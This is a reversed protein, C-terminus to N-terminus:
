YGQISSVPILLFCASSRKPPPTTTYIWQHPWSPLTMTSLFLLCTVNPVYTGMPELSWEQPMVSGSTHSRRFGLGNLEDIPFALCQAWVWNTPDLNPGTNPVLDEPFQVYVHITAAPAAMLSLSFFAPRTHHVYMTYPFHRLNPNPGNPDGDHRLAGSAVGLSRSRGVRVTPGVVGLRSCGAWGLGESRECM